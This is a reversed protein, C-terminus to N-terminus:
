FIFQYPYNYMSVTSLTKYVYFNHSWNGPLGTSSVAVISYTFSGSGGSYVTNYNEDLISDLLGYATDYVFYMYKNTDNYTYIKSGTGSIDKTLSTYLTVGGLIPNTSMGHFFPYIRNAIVTTTVSSTGDFASLSWSATPNTTTINVSTISGYTASGAYLTPPAIIPAIVGSLTASTINNTTTQINWYLQPAFISGYEYITSSSTLSIVPTLYPYMLKNFVEFLNLESFTTGVPIGAVTIQSPFTNTYLVSSGNILVSSGVITVPSGTAYISTVSPSDWVGDVGDFMLLKNNSASAIDPLNLGRVSVVPANFLIKSNTAANVLYLDISDPSIVQRAELYPADNFYSVSPGALISIKTNQNVNTDKKNNYFFLDTDSQLLSQTMVSLGYREKKGFYIKQNITQGPFDDYGTYTLGSVTTPKIIINEWMTFVASRLNHPSVLKEENDVLLNMVTQIGQGGVQAPISVVNPANILVESELKHAETTLGINISYTSM